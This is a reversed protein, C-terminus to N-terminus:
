KRGLCIESQNVWNQIQGRELKRVYDKVYLEILGTKFKGEPRLIFIFCAFNTRYVTNEFLILLTIARRFLLCLLFLM